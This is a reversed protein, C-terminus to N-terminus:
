HQLLEEVLVRAQEQEYEEEGLAGLLKDFGRQMYIGMSEGFCAEVSARHTHSRALHKEKRTMSLCGMSQGWRMYFFNVVEFLQSQSSSVTPDDVIGSICAEKFKNALQMMFDYISFAFFHVGLPDGQQSRFISKTTVVVQGNHMVSWSSLKSITCFGRSGCCSLCRLSCRLCCRQGALATTAM